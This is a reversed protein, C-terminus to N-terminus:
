LSFTARPDGAAVKSLEREAMTLYEQIIAAHGETYSALVFSWRADAFNELYLYCLGRHFQAKGALQRQDTQTALSLGEEAHHLAGTFDGNCRLIASYLLVANIRHASKLREERLLSTLLALAQQPKGGKWIAEAEALQPTMNVCSLWVGGIWEAKHSLDLDRPHIQTPEKDDSSRLADQASKLLRHLERNQADLEVITSEAYSLETKMRDRDNIIQTLRLYIESCTESESLGPDANDQEMKYFGCDKKAHEASEAETELNRMKTMSSPLEDQAEARIILSYSRNWRIQSDKPDPDIDGSHHSQAPSPMTSENISATDM